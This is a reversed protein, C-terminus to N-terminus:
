MGCLLVFTFVGYWTDPVCFDILGLVCGLAFLTGSCYLLCFGCM